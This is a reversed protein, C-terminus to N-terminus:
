ITKYNLEHNKLIMFDHLIKCKEYEEREELFNLLNKILKQSYPKFNIDYYKNEEIRKFTEIMLYEYNKLTLEEVM